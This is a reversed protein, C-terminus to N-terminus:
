GEATLQLQRKAALLDAVYDDGFAKKAAARAGASTLTHYQYRIEEEARLVPLMEDALAILGPTMPVAAGPYQRAVRM